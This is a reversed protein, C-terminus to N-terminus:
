TAAVHDALLRLAAPDGDLVVLRADGHRLCRQGTLAVRQGCLCRPTVFWPSPDGRQTHRLETLHEEPQCYACDCAHQDQFAARHANRCGLASRRRRDTDDRAPAAANDAALARLAREREPDLYRDLRGSADPRGRATNAAAFRIPRPWSATGNHSLGGSAVVEVVDALRAAANALREAVRDGRREATGRRQGGAVVFTLTVTYEVANQFAPTHYPRETM